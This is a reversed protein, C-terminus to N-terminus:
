LRVRRRTGSQSVAARSAGGGARRDSDRHWLWMRGGGGRAVLRRAEGFLTQGRQWFYRLPERARPPIGLPGTGARRARVGCLVQLCVACRGAEGVAVLVRRSCHGSRAARRVHLLAGPGRTVVGREPADVPTTAM